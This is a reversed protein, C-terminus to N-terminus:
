RIVSYILLLEVCTSCQNQKISYLSYFCLYLYLAVNGIYWYINNLNEMSNLCYKAM